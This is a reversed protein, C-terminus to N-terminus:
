QFYVQHPTQYNLSQPSLSGEKAAEMKALEEAIRADILANIEEETLEPEIPTDACALFSALLLAILVRVILNNPPMM